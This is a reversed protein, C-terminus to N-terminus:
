IVESRSFPEIEFKNDGKYKLIKGTKRGENFEQSLVVFESKKNEEIMFKIHEYDPLELNHSEMISRVSEPLFMAIDDKTVMSSSVESSEIITSQCLESVEHLVGCNNCPTTKVRVSGDEEVISFVIFEHLPADKRRKLTPLICRCRVLHKVGTLKSSM